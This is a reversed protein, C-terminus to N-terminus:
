LSEPLAPTVNDEFPPLRPLPLIGGVLEGGAHPMPPIGGGVLHPPVLEELLAYAGDSRALGFVAGRMPSGDTSELRIELGLYTTELAPDLDITVQAVGHEVDTKGFGVVANQLQPPTMGPWAWVIADVKAASGVDLTLDLQTVTGLRWRLSLAQTSQASPPGAQKQVVVQGLDDRFMLLDDGGDRDLDVALPGALSSGAAPWIADGVWDMCSKGSFSFQEGGCGQQLIAVGGPRAFFLDDLSDGLVRGTALGGSYEAASSAESHLTVSDFLSLYAAGADSRLWAVRTPASSQGDVAVLQGGTSSRLHQGILDLSSNYIHVGSDAGVVIEPALDGNLDQVLLDHVEGIDLFALDEVTFQAGGAIPLDLSLLMLAEGNHFWAAGLARPLSGSHDIGFAITEADFGAAALSWSDFEGADAGARWLSLGAADGVFFTSSPKGDVAPIAGAAHVGTHLTRVSGWLGPNSILRLEGGAHLLVDTFEDGTFEGEFASKMPAFGTGSVPAVTQTGLPGM